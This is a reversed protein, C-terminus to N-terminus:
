RSDCHEIFWATKFIPYELVRQDVDNVGNKFPLTKTHTGGNESLAFATKGGSIGSCDRCAAPDGLRWEEDRSGPSRQHHWIGGTCGAFPGMQISLISTYVRDNHIMANPIGQTTEFYHVPGRGVSIYEFLSKRTYLCM